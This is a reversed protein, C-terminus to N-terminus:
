SAIAHKRCLKRFEAPKRLLDDVSVRLFEAIRAVLSIRAENEGKILTQITSPPADVANALGRVTLEFESMAFTVNAALHLIAEHKEIM